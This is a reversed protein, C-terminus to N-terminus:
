PLPTWGLSVLRDHLTQPTEEEPDVDKLVGAAQVLAYSVEVCAPKQSNKFPNKIKAGLRRFFLVIGHGLLNLVGYPRALEHALTPMGTSLDIGAPPVLVVHVDVEKLYEVVGVERIERIDADVVIREQFLPHDYIPWTHSYEAHSFWRILRSLINKKRTSFGIGIM